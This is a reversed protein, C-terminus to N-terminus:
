ERDFITLISIHFLTSIKRKYEFSPEHIGKVWNYVATHSCGIKKSLWKANRDEQKLLKALKTEM